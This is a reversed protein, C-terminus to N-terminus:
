HLYIFTPEFSYRIIIHIIEREKLFVIRHALDLPCRLSKTCTKGM